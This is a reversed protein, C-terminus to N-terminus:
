NMKIRKADKTDRLQFTSGPLQRNVKVTTYRAVMYDGGPQFFKQQVPLWSDASVWLRVKELQRAVTEKKPVLELVNTAVGDLTEEGVFKLTYAKRLESTDTGFGLLFFQQILGGHDDLDYEQIQNIRPYFLEARNGRVLITKSEPKEIQIRILPSSGKRFFIQGTETSRDDVLVTVKTYALDASFTRLKKGSEDMRALVEELGARPTPPPAAQAALVLALPLVLPALANPSWKLPNKV